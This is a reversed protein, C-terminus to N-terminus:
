APQPPPTVAVGESASAGQYQASGFGLIPFFVFPLWLLGAGFSTWKRFNIAVDM